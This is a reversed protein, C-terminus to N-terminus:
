EQRAWTRAINATDDESDIASQTSTLGHDSTLYPFVEQDAFVRFLGSQTVNLRKECAEIVDAGPPSASSIPPFASMAYNRRGSELPM